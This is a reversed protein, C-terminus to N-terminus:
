PNFIIESNNILPNEVPQQKDQKALINLAKNREYRIKAAQRRKAKLEDINQSELWSKYYIARQTLKEEKNNEYYKKQARRLAENDRYPRTKPKAEINDM